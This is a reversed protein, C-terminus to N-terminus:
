SPAVARPRATPLSIAIDEFRVSGGLRPTAYAVTTAVLQLTLSEHRSISQAIVELQVTTSHTRGDLTVDLPTIQNGVVLRTQDDVLQAFVRTPRVGAPGTGRYRITLVPPGVLLAHGGRERLKVDVANTAEAPTFPLTATVLPNTVGPPTKLVPGAGGEAILKLTGHGTASLAAGAPVPYSSAAFRQGRQDIIDIAPGTHASRDRKVWRDMWAITARRTLSPDGQPTLCPGHGGCFWLMETPVRSAVLRRYNAIGEHLTFLTDTTGQMILTPIRIRSVLAGPGRAAFWRRTASSMRGIRMGDLVAQHVENAVHDNQVLAVLFNGWGAKFTDAKDLSEPLSSWAVEPAIADVRCDTAATAWQIGGGYSAGVMGMRPDGPRDLQVGPRQSIWDILRSVDRAEYSPSDVEAVGGSKGFGRPDWTLVNYGAAHLESISLDGLIPQASLDTDGAFSWPPGMFLTPAPRAAGAGALPFWHARIRTGDFSTVTWDSAVGPVRVAHVPGSPGRHCKPPRWTAAGAPVGQTALALTVAAISGLLTRSGITKM